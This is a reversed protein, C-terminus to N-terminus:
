RLMGLSSYNVGIVINNCCPNILNLQQLTMPSFPMGIKVEM